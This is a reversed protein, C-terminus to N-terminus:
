PAADNDTGDNTNERTPTTGQYAAHLATVIALAVVGAWLLFIIGLTVMARWIDGWDPASV